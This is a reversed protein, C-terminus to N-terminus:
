ANWGYIVRGPEAAETKEQPLDALGSGTAASTASRPIPSDPASYSTPKGCCKCTFRKYLDGVGVTDAFPLRQASIRMTHGCCLCGITIMAAANRVEGLTLSPHLRRGRATSTM